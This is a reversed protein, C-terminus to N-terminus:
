SSSFSTWAKVHDELHSLDHLDDVDLFTRCSPVLNRLATKISVANDQAHTWKHSLFVHFGHSGAQPLALKIVDGSEDWSTSVRGSRQVIRM